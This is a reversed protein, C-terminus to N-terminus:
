SSQTLLRACRKKVVRLLKHSSESKWVWKRKRMVMLVAILLIVWV